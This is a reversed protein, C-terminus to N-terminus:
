AAAQFRGWWSKCNCSRLREEKWNRLLRCVVRSTPSSGSWPQFHWQGKQATIKKIVIVFTTYSLICTYIKLMICTPTTNVKVLLMVRIADGAVAAQGTIDIPIQGLSRPVIWFYVSTADNSEVQWDFHFAELVSKGKAIAAVQEKAYCVISLLVWGSECYLACYSTTVNTPTCLRSYNVNKLVM